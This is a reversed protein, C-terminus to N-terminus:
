FHTFSAEDPAERTAFAPARLTKAAPRAVTSGKAHAPRPPQTGHGAHLRFFAMSRQLQEAQSSM